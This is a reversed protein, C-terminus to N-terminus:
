IKRRVGSKSVRGMQFCENPENAGIEGNELCENAMKWGNLNGPAFHAPFRVRSVFVMWGM